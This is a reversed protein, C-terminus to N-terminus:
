KAGFAGRISQFAKKQRESPEQSSPIVPQAPVTQTNTPAPVNTQQPQPTPAPSQSPVNASQSQLAQLARLKAQQMADDDQPNVQQNPMQDIPM